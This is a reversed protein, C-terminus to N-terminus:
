AGRFDPHNLHSSEFAEPFSLALRRFQEATVLGSRDRLSRENRVFSLMDIETRVFTPNAKLLSTGAQAPASVQSRLRVGSAPTFYEARPHSLSAGLVTEAATVVM